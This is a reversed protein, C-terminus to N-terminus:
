NLIRNAIFSQKNFYKGLWIHVFMEIANTVNVFIRPLEQLSTIDRLKINTSGQLHNAYNPM